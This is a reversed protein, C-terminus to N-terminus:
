RAENVSSVRHLEVLFSSSRANIDSLPGRGRPRVFVPGVESILDIGMVGVPAKPCLSPCNRCRFFAGGDSIVRDIRPTSTATVSVRSSLGM